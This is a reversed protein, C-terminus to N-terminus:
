LEQEIEKYSKDELQEREVQTDIYQSFDLEAPAIEIERMENIADKIKEVEEVEVTESNDVEIIINEVTGKWIRQNHM